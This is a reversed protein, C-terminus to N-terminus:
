TEIRRRNGSKIKRVIFLLCLLVLSLVAGGLGILTMDEGGSERSTFFLYTSGGLGALLILYLLAAM